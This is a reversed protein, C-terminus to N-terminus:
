SGYINPVFVMRLAMEMIIVTGVAVIFVLWVVVGVGGSPLGCSIDIM